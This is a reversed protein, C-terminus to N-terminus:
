KEDLPRLHKMLNKHYRIHTTCTHKFIFSYISRVSFGIYARHCSAAYAQNLTLKWVHQSFIKEQDVAKTLNPQNRMMM